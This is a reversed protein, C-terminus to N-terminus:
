RSPERARPPQVRQREDETAWRSLRSETEGTSGWKSDQGAEKETSGWRDAVWPKEDPRKHPQPSQSPKDQSCVAMDVEDAPTAAHVSCCVALTGARGGVGSSASPKERMWQPALAAPEQSGISGQRGLM